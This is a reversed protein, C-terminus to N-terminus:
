PIKLKKSQGSGTKSPTTQFIKGRLVFEIDFNDMVTLVIVDRAVLFMPECPNDCVTWSSYILIVKSTIISEGFM